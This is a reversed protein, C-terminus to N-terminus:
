IEASVESLFSSFARQNREDLKRYCSILKTEEDTLRISLSHGSVFTDLTVGLASCVRDLTDIDMKNSGRQKMSHFTNVPVDAMRALKSLTINKENILKELKTYIGM